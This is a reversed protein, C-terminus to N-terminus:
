AAESARTRWAPLPRTLGEVYAIDDEFHRLLRQYLDEDMTPYAARRMNRAELANRLRHAPRRIFRPLYAWSRFRTAAIARHLFRSAPVAHPNVEAEFSPSFGDDVDIFRCIAAYTPGPQERLDDYLVTLVRESGLAELYRSVHRRYSSMYLLYRLEPDDLIATFPPMPWGRKWNHWYHSYARDVPQRLVFIVKLGPVHKEMLEPGDLAGLYHTSAEGRAPFGAAGEFLTEYWGIGHSYTDERLPGIIRVGPEPQNADRTLFHPEKVASM